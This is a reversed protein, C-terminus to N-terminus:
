GGPLSTAPAAKFRGVDRVKWTPGRRGGQVGKAIGAPVFVGAFDPVWAGM